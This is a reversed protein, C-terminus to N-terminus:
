RATTTSSRTPTRASRRPTSSATTRTSRSGRRAPPSGPTRRTTGSCRAHPRQRPEDRRHGGAPGRRDRHRADERRRRPEADRHGPVPRVRTFHANTMGLEEGQYVYPTGRHLHLVTALMTASERRFRGDDGFRSVVRPQDHNDWYLSNWGVDALGAQWRGFSRRSTACGCRASTSSAARATTSASTSSSSCWTSRTARRTPSTARGARGHRRADGRGDAPARAPGRLRGQADRGPVRPHASRLRLRPEGDGLLATPSRGRRAADHGQLHPQHRGDPLRRGRPRAVLADDRLRRRPGGPEGLEPGAAQPQVPAPLVRRSAEDLQWAPGGFFSRWNTPEAGPDGAAM